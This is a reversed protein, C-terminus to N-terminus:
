EKMTPSYTGVILQIKEIAKRHSIVTKAAQELIIKIAEIQKILRSTVEELREIRETLNQINDV